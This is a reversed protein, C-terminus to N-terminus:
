GYSKQWLAEDGHAVLTNMVSSIIASFHESRTGVRANVKVLDIAEGNDRKRKKTPAMKKQVAKTKHLTLDIIGKNCIARVIIISTFVPFSISKIDAIAGLVTAVILLLRLEHCM